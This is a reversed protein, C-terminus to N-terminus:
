RSTSVFRFRILACTVAIAWATRSLQSGTDASRVPELMRGAPRRARRADVGLRGRTRARGGQMAGTPVSSQASVACNAGM